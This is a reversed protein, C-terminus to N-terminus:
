DKSRLTLSGLRQWSDQTSGEVRFDYPGTGTLRRRFLSFNLVYAYGTLSTKPARLTQQWLPKTTASLTLRYRFYKRGQSDYVPVSLTAETQDRSLDLTRTEGRTPELSIAHLASERDMSWSARAITTKLEKLTPSQEALPSPTASAPSKNEQEQEEAHPQANRQQTIIQTRRLNSSSLWWVLVFAAISALVVVSARILWTSRPTVLAQDSSSKIGTLAVGFQRFSRFASRVLGSDTYSVELQMGEVTGEEDRVPTLQISLRQGETRVVADEFSQHDHSLILALTIEHGNEHGIVEILSTDPGILSRVGSKESPDFSCILEDEVYISLKDPSFSNRRRSQADLTRELRIYDEDSLRPPQFRDGRPSGRPFNSFQPVSLREDLSDYNCGRDLDKEPLTRVYKSLGEAFRNLCEPHLVTHIRNMAILEEDNPSSESFYLGPIYTVDFAPEVVCVTEWPTFRQLSENVLNIVSRSAPQMVLQKEDGPMKETQIMDGFRQSVRALMELRQKGIYSTDKMRASDSQTLIDYFLRTERRGFQHLLAGVSLTVYFSDRRITTFVLHEIYRVVLDDETPLYLGEGRETLREWAESEKYVLWQLMQLENLSVTKRVPRTREGWKLFGRLQEFPKRNKEQRGLMTSLADLADEAVFFAVEKNVHIWYALNFALEFLHREKSHPTTMVTELSRV